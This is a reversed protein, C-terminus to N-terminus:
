RIRPRRPTEDSALWVARVAALAATIPHDDKARVAHYSGQEGEPKRSTWTLDDTVADADAWRLRKSAVRQAFKASANGFTSGNIPKAKGKPVGRVLDKDTMPDYGVEAGHKRSLTTVEERLEDVDVDTREIFTTLAIVDGARWAMVISARKADPDLSVGIAPRLPKSLPGRCALWDQDDVLRERTTTVWRCLHETEFHALTGALKHSQYTRQLFALQGPFHGLSPNAELWGEVDDARRDPGASWEVWALAPDESARLRLANLADSDDTGANSLYVTQPNLSAAQTAKAAEVFDEDLERLEDMILDDASQGRPGGGTAATIQYSGGTSPIYISEQGGALRIVADPWKARVAPDLDRVFMKRVLDRKQAAHLIDRGMELRAMIHPKLLTTKGSQRSVIVAVEAYLWQDDQGLAYIYRGATKQWPLLTVRITAAATLLQDLSARAPTPPALRPHERGILKHPAAERAIAAMEGM